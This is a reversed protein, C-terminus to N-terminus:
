LGLPHHLMECKIMFVVAGMPVLTMLQSPGGANGCSKASRDPPDEQPGWKLSPKALSCFGLSLGLSVPVLLPQHPGLMQQTQVGTGGQVSSWTYQVFHVSLVHCM